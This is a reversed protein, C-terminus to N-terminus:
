TKKKKTKKGSIIGYKDQGLNYDTRLQAKTQSVEISIVKFDGEEGSIRLYNQGGDVAVKGCSCERFDYGSRSFVVDKCHTCRIANVRM